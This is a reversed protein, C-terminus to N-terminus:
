KITGVTSGLFLHDSTTSRKDTTVRDRQGKNVDGGKGKGRGESGRPMKERLGHALCVRSVSASRFGVDTEARLRSAPNFILLPPFSDSVERTCKLTIHCHPQVVNELIVRSFILPFIHVVLGTGKRFQALAERSQHM